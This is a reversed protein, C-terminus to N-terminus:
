SAAFEEAIKRQLRRQGIVLNPHRLRKAEVPALRRAASSLM